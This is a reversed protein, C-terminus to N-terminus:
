VCMYKGKEVRKFKPASGAYRGTACFGPLVDNLLANDYQGAFFGRMSKTTFPSALDGNERLVIIREALETAQIVRGKRQKENAERDSVAEEAAVKAAYAKIEEPSAIEIDNTFLDREYIKPEEIRINPHTVNSLPRDYVLLVDCPVRLACALHMADNPLLKADAYQRCMRHASIGVETDVEVIKVFPENIYELFEDLLANTPTLRKHMKFVEALAIASVFVPFAGARAKEWLFKFVVHRKIGKVIEGEGLGAIFLSSDLCPKKYHETV